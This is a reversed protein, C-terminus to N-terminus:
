PETNTGPETIWASFVAVGDWPAAGLDAVRGWSAELDPASNQAVALVAYARNFRLTATRLTADREIPVSRLAMGVATAAAASFGRRTYKAVTSQKAEFVLEDFDTFKALTDCVAERGQATLLNHDGTATWAPLYTETVSLRSTHETTRVQEETVTWAAGEGLPLDYLDVAIKPLTGATVAAAIEAAAAHVDAVPVHEDAIVSIVQMGNGSEAIHVGVHGAADTNAILSTHLDHARLAESAKDGFEGGLDDRDAAEFEWHWTIDTFVTNALVVATLETLELPLSEVMGGTRRAVWADAEGQSPIGGVEVQELTRAWEDFAANTFDDRAWVAAATAVAPHYHSLLETARRYADDANTGLVAELADRHEGTAAPALTALLLWYGLPSVATHTTAYHANLPAAFRAILEATSPMDASTM